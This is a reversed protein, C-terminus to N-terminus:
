NNCHWKKLKKKERKAFYCYKGLKVIGTQRVIESSPEIGLIYLHDM